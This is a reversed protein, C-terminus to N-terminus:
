KAGFNTYFRSKTILWFNVINGVTCPFFATSPEGYSPLSTLGDRLAQIEKVTANNIDTVGNQLIGLTYAFTERDFDSKAMLARMRDAEAAEAEVEAAERKNRPQRQQGRKVLFKKEIRKEIRDQHAQDMDQLLDSAAQYAAVRDEHILDNDVHRCESQVLSKLMGKAKEDPTSFLRPKLDNM